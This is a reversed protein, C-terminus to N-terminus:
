YPLCLHKPTFMVRYNWSSTRTYNQKEYDVLLPVASRRFLPALLVFLLMLFVFSCVYCVGVIVCIATVVWPTIAAFLEYVAEVLLVTEFKWDTILIDSFGRLGRCIVTNRKLMLNDDERGLLIGGIGITWMTVLEGRTYNCFNWRQILAMMFKKWYVEKDQFIVQNLLDWLSWIIVYFWSLWAKKM